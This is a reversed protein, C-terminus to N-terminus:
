EGFYPGFEKDLYDPISDPKKNKCKKLLTKYIEVDFKQQEEFLSFVLPMIITIILHITDHHTVKKNRMSNYFQFVEVPEREKLQNEVLAHLTIHLFPNIESEPDFEREFLVDAFEFNNFFEDEHELMIKALLRDEDPLEDVEDNKAAEWLTHMHQRSIKKLESNLEDVMDDDPFMDEDEAGTHLLVNTLEVDFDEPDFFPGAWERMSEHEEHDPDNFIELFDGYGFPGGCDEPPCSRAGDLCVPYEIGEEPASVSEVKLKHRWDDGFDYVYTFTDGKKLKLSRLSVTDAIKGRGLEAVTELDTYEAKHIFFSYLHTDTWDMVTQIIEHLEFLSIDDLVAFRRWIAPKIGELSISITLVRAINVVKGM